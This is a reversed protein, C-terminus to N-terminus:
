RSANTYPKNLHTVEVYNSQALLIKQLVNFGFIKLNLALYFSGIFQLLAFNNPSAAFINTQPSSYSGWNKQPNSDVGDGEPDAGNTKPLSFISM